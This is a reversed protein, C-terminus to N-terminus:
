PDWRDGEYSRPLDDLSELHFLKLFRETTRYLKRKPKENTIELKLLNRRLLQGLISGCPAGRLEELQDRTIPQKYAVISLVDIVAQSLKAEKIRGYFKNRVVALSDDLVMRYGGSESIIRYAAQQTEYLENLEVVLDDIEEPSVGRMLSAIRRPTLPTNDPNGVFLMAELIGRPSVEEDEEAREEKEEAKSVEDVIAHIESEPKVERPQYPSDGKDMLEAFAKGLEDLSLGDDEPSQFFEEFGLQEQSAQNPKGDQERQDSM